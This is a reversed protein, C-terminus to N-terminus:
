GGGAGARGGGGPGGGAEAPPRTTGTPHSALTLAVAFDGWARLGRIGQAPRPMHTCALQQLHHTGSHM